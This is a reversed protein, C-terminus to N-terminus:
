DEVWITMMSRPARTIRRKVKIPRTYDPENSYFDRKTSLEEKYHWYESLERPKDFIKLDSIHLALGNEWKLYIGLEEITLCANELFELNGNEGKIKYSYMGQNVWHQEELIDIKRLTFMCPVLGNLSKIHYGMASINHLEPKGKTCYCYVDVSNGKAIEELVWKPMRKVIIITQKGNLINAMEKPNSPQIAAKKM